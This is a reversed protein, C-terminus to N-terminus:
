DSSCRSKLEVLAQGSAALTTTIEDLALRYADPSLSESGAHLKRVLASLRALGFIGAAGHLTHLQFRISEVRDLTLARLAAIRERAERFFGRLLDEAGTAGLNSCLEALATRDVLECPSSECMFLHANRRLAAVM